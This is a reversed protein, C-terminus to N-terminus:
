QAAYDYLPMAYAGLLNRTTEQVQKYHSSVQEVHRRFVALLAILLSIM